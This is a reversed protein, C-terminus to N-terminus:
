GAAWTRLLEYSTTGATRETRFVWVALQQRAMEEALGFAERSSPADALRVVDRVPRGASDRETRRGQVEYRVVLLREAANERDM